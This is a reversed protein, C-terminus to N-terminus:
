FIATQRHSDGSPKVGAKVILRVSAHSKAILKGKEDYVDFMIYTLGTKLATVKYNGNKLKAISAAGKSSSYVKVATNKANTLKVGIEYSQNPAMTYIKTDLTLSRVAKPLLVYDSCHSIQVTVNGDADVTYAGTSLPEIQKSTPNYYYFYLTEGPKFGKDLASIKVSAVSPLVGSHDFSLVLGKNAPTIANVKPVETTLHVSMSINVDTVAITSKALDAGRFTWSYAMQQTDADKIKITVDSANAKAAELIDKNANITVALNANTDKAVESPVTVTLEVNKKANLQQKIDETPVIITVNTKKATDVTDGKTSTLTNDMTVNSVTTDINTTDGNTVVSDPVTTVTADNNAKDVKTETVVKTTSPSSSSSSNKTRNGGAYATATITVTKQITTLVQAGKFVTITFFYSGNTGSPNASTGAVPATYSIKNVSVTIDSNNVATQATVKLATEIISDNTVEAQTMSSYAASEAATKAAEVIAIDPDPAVNVTMNLNKTDHVSGKSLAVDYKGTGSNYTVVAIVGAVSAAKSLIGNVYSQVAATKDDQAAGFAVDVTGDIIATKAAAVIAIDPDPAVNVTVTYPKITTGDEATVTYAVPSTFDQAGAPSVSAKTDTLTIAPTLATVNTGYPVTVAVTNSASDVTGTASPSVLNFSEITAVNNKTRVPAINSTATSKYTGNTNTVVCYYYDTHNPNASSIVTCDKGTAGMIAVSGMTSNIANSYWQYSLTGGDSVSSSLSLTVSDGANVLKETTSLNPLITPAAASTPVFAAITITGSDGTLMTGNAKVRVHYTGDALGTIDSGTGQNWESSSSLKYEMVTTVGKLKGDNNHFTTCDSASVGTVAGGKTVAIDQIDSDTTTTGNGLKKVKVGNATSVGTIDASTGTVTIWSSGGNVSYQMGSVINTLTGADEGTATFVAAPTTESSGTFATITITQAASAFASSTAKTRIQYTGAAFNTIETDTVDQWGGSEPKYQMATTVNTIKGAGGITTPNVGTAAPATPIAPVTLSQEVSDDTNSDGKKVISLTTGFWGSDIDISTGTPTQATSNITYQANGTFGTLKENVYDITINPTEQPKVAVQVMNNAGNKIAYNSNDSTFNGSYDDSNNDTINVPSGATPPNQMTVGIIAAPDLGGAGITITVGKTLRVNAPSSGNLNTNGTIQVNGSVTMTSYSSMNVAYDDSKVSQIVSGGMMTLKGDINICGSQGSGGNGTVNQIVAGSDLVLEASSFVYILNCNTTTINNGSNGDLTINKLTLTSSVKFFNNTTNSAARTITYSGGAPSQITINKGSPINIASGDADFNAGIKITATGGTPVNNVATALKEWTDIVAFEAAGDTTVAATYTKGGYTLEAAGAPLYVYVKGKSDGSDLISKAGKMGYPYSAGGSTFTMASVDTGGTTDNPVTLTAKYISAGDGNKPSTISSAKISGGTITVTDGNGGSGTGIGAGGAGGTAKVTGGSIAITGGAKAYGGGIGAAANGGTATVQASGGITIKGGEGMSGGGIGAANAGGNATVQASGGITITGGAGMSGGIGAANDGGNATVQASDCITITGGAEMSGGGIGAANAGGTAEVTGSEIIITGDCTNIAAGSGMNGSTAENKVTLKNTGPHSDTVTFTKGSAIKIGNSDKGTAAPLDIALSYGNLDLTVNRAINLQTIIGTIDATLTVTGGAAVATRLEEETGVSPTLDTGLLMLMNPVKGETVTIEPLSASVTYGEIEPTFVYIGATGTDYEPSSVWTVPVSVTTEQQESGSNTVARVTATLTTPLNLDELSTGLPVTKETESLEAFATIEGNAGSLADAAAALVSLSPLTFVMCVALLMSLIRKM